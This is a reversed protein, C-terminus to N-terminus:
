SPVHSVEKIQTLMVPGFHNTTFDVEFIKHIAPLTVGQETRQLEGSVILQRYRPELRIHQLDPYFVSTLKRAKILKTEAALQAAVQEHTRTTVLRMLRLFRDDIIKPTFTLRYQLVSLGFQRLYSPSVSTDSFSVSEGQWNVIKTPRSIFAYACLIVLLAAITTSSIAWALIARIRFEINNVKNDRTKLEM